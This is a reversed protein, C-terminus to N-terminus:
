QARIRPAPNLQDARRFEALAEADRHERRLQIGKEVMERSSPDARATFPTLALSGVLLFAFLWTKMDSWSLHVTRASPRFPVCSLPRRPLRHSPLRRWAIARRSRSGRM